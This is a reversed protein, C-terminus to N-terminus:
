CAPTCCRSRRRRRSTATPRGRTSRGSAPWCAAASSSCRSSSRRSTRTSSTRTCRAAPRVHRPGGRQLRRLHRHLDPDFGRGAHDDAEDRRIGEHARVDRLRQELGLRRDAPVDAAGRGRVLLLLLVPGAVRVHRLRRRGAGLVPHLLGQQPARDELLDADGGFAVIGTLLVMPAAIGDVGFHSRSATRASSASTRWGTTASSSSTDAATISKTPSSSTRRSARVAGRRRRASGACSTRARRGPRVPDGGSRAATHRRTAILWYGSEM